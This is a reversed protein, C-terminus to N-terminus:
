TFLTESSGRASKAMSATNQLAPGKVARSSADIADQRIMELLPIPTFSM